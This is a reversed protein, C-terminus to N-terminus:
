ARREFASLHNQSGKLLRELVIRVDAPANELATTLDAIDTEEITIGVQIADAASTSGRAVLTDYLEQLAPDTFVGTATARPDDVGYVPLLAAVADQHTSESAAINTFIQTGWLDGLVTYVDHALKEEEILYALQAEVSTDAPEAAETDATSETAKTTEVNESPAAAASSAASAETAGPPPTSSTCGVLAISAITLATLSGVLRTNM